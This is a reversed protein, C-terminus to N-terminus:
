VVTAHFLVPAGFCAGGSLTFGRDSALLPRLGRLWLASRSVGLALRSGGGALTFGRDAALPPMLGRPWLASRSVGLASRFIRLSPSEFGRYPILRYVSELRAGEAV